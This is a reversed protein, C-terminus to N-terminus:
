ASPAEIYAARMTPEPISDGDERMAELHMQIAGRMLEETEEFTFGGAICGPLDPAYASYGTATKEYIVLYKMTELGAQEPISKLTKSAVNVSPHGAITVKGPKTPHKNQRHSGRQTAIQWGDAEVTKIVDRFKV